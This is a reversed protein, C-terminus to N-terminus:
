GGKGIMIAAMYKNAKEKSKYVKKLEKAHKGSPLTVRKGKVFKDAYVGYGGGSMKRVDAALYSEGGANGGNGGNGGNGNGGNGNQGNGNGNGNGSQGNQNQSQDQAPADSKTPFFYTRTYIDKFKTKKPVCAMVKSDFKYGDPCDFGHKDEQARKIQAPTPAGKEGPKRMREGSGRKIRERKKRINDWLGETQQNKRATDQARARDDERDHQIKLRELEKKQAANTKALATHGDENKQILDNVVKITQKRDPNKPNLTIEDETGLLTSVTPGDLQDLFKHLKDRKNHKTEYGKKGRVEVHGRQNTDRVKLVMMDPNNKPYSLKLKLAESVEKKVRRDQKDRINQHFASSGAHPGKKIPSRDIKAQKLRKKATQIMNEKRMEKTKNKMKEIYARYVNAEATKGMVRARQEMAIAAQIKHAHTRNSKEIKSVSAKATAVDKFGLGHITGKPNEDTYLDSHKDSGAPQGKKRPIRPEEGFMKKYKLTHKSPKTKAGKDGPAPKYADPNDDDMKAGKTFHRDRAQKTSKAMKKGAADKAYYKAPETGPSDKIDPDQKVRRLKPRKKKQANLDAVPVYQGMGPGTSTGGLSFYPVSANVYETFYRFSKM